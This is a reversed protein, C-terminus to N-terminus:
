LFFFWLICMPMSSARSKADHLSFTQYNLDGVREGYWNTYGGIDYWSEGMPRLRACISIMQTRKKSEIPHNSIGSV